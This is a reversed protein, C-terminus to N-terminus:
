SDEKHFTDMTDMTDMSSEKISVETENDGYSLLGQVGQVGQVSEGNEIFTKLEIGFWVRERRGKEITKREEHLQIQKKLEITFATQSLKMLKKKNCYEIYAAYLQTKIIWANPDINCRDDIFAFVPDSLKQYYDRTEEVTMKESFRKQERLVKLKELAINLLGSLEEPSTLASLLNKNTKENGDDYVNPFPIIVWREFFADTVDDTKPMTNTSFIMKARNFFYFPDRFKHEGKMRDGGCLGKFVGTQKLTVNSIDPYINALKGYLQSASFRRHTIDQLPEHSVNDQGIFTILLDLYTSKGNSGSGVLMFSKRIFYSPELLYGTIEKLVEIKDKSVIEVLFKLINPAEAEPDYTIPIKILSLHGPTHDIIEKTELDLIGNAVVLKNPDVDFNERKIYSRRKIHGIVENSFNTTRDPFYTEVDKKIFIEGGEQYYGDQYVHIEETDEMTKFVHNQM